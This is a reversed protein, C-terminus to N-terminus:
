IKTAIIVEGNNQSLLRWLIPETIDYNPGLFDTMSYGLYDFFKTLEDLTLKNRCILEDKSVMDCMPGIDPEPNEGLSKLCVTFIVRTLKQDIEKDHVM